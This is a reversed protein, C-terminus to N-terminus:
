NIIANVGRLADTFGNYYSIKKDNEKTIEDLKKLLSPTLKGDFDNKIDTININEKFCNDQKNSKEKIQENITKEIEKLLEMAGDYSKIIIM